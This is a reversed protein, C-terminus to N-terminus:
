LDKEIRQVIGLWDFDNLPQLLANRIALELFLNKPQGVMESISVGAMGLVTSTDEPLDGIIRKAVAYQQERANIHGIIEDRPLPEGYEDEPLANIMDVVLQISGFGIPDSIYDRLREDGGRFVARNLCHLFFALGEILLLRQDLQSYLHPSDEKMAFRKYCRESEELGSKSIMDEYIDITEGSFKVPSAAMAVRLEEMARALRRKRGFNKFL